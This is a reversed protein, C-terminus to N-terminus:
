AVAGIKEGLMQLTKQAARSVNNQFLIEGPPTKARKVTRLYSRNELIVIGKKASVDWEM